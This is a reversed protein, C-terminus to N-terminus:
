AREEAYKMQNDISEFSKMLIPNNWENKTILDNKHRVLNIWIPHSIYFPTVGIRAIGDAYDLFGKIRLSNAVSHGTDLYFMQKNRSVCYALLLKENQPLNALEKAFERQTKINEIWSNIHKWPSLQVCWFVLSVITAIGIYPRYSTVLQTIGLTDKIQQPLFLALIGILSIAFFYRPKLEFIKLWNHM